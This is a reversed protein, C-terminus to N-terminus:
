RGAPTDRRPYSRPEYVELDARRVMLVLSARGPPPMLRRAKLKGKTVAHHVSGKALGLIRAAEALTVYDEGYPPVEESALYGYAHHLEGPVIALVRELSALHEPHPAAGGLELNQLYETGRCCDTARQLKLALALATAADDLSLGAAERSSTVFEGVAKYDRVTPLRPGGRCSVESQVEVPAM